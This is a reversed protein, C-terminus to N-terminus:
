ASLQRAKSGAPGISEIERMPRPPPLATPSVAASNAPTSKPRHDRQEGAIAVAVNQARVDDFEVQQGVAAKVGDAFFDIAADRAVVGRYGIAEARQRPEDADGTAAAKFEGVARLQGNPEFGGAAPMRGAPRNVPQFRAGEDSDDSGNEDHGGGTEPEPLAQGPERVAASVGDRGRDLLLDATGGVRHKCLREPRGCEREVILHM